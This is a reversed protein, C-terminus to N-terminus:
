SSLSLSFPLMIDLGLPPIRTELKQECVTKNTQNLPKKIYTVFQNVPKAKNACSQQAEMTKDYASRAETVGESNM